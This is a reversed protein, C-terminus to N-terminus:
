TKGEMFDSITRIAVKAAELMPYGYYGTSISPFAISEAGKDLALEMCKKHCQALVM